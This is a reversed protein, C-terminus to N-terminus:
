QAQEPRFDDLMKGEQLVLVRKRMRKILLLDHSAVLVCTGDANFDALLSLIEGSLQPDLNGTPEDALLLEPKSVMARAIGVRQQEGTSLQSPLAKSRDLLGVRDLVSNISRRMDQPRAGIIQLPLAVNDYLTRDMLLRHDQFVIGLRRRLAPVRRRSLKGLNIGAYLVAGASPREMVAILKLLTSKGAGSHGTVFVMEHADVEFSLADLGMKGGPYRKSVQDFRIM